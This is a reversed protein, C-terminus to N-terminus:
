LRVEEPVAPLFAIQTVEMAMNLAMAATWRRASAEEAATVDGYFLVRLARRKEDRQKHHMQGNIRVFDPHLYPISRDLVNKVFPSVGGYVCRSVLVLEDCQAIRWGMHEWGDHLVCQGPTKIWCGYCGVCPSIKGDNNAVDTYADADVADQALDHIVLRRLRREREM